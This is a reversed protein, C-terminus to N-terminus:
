NLSVLHNESIITGSDSFGEIIVLIEEESEFPVKFEPITDNRNSISQWGLIGFHKFSSISTEFYDPRKFRSPPDFGRDVLIEESTIQKDSKPRNKFKDNTFVVIIMGCAGPRDWYIEDVYELSIDKYPDLFEDYIGDFVIAPFVTGCRNNRKALQLTGARRDRWMPSILIPIFGQRQMFDGITMKTLTSDIKTAQYTPFFRQYKLRKATVVVEELNQTDSGNNSLPNQENIFKSSEHIDNTSFRHRFKEIVPKIAYSFNAKYPKGNQAILSLNLKSGKELALDKFQFKSDIVESNLLLENSKSYLVVMKPKITKDRPEVVGEITATYSNPEPVVLNKNLITNWSYKPQALISIEDMFNLDEYSVIEKAWLDRWEANKFHPELYLAFLAKKRFEQTRTKAPLISISLSETRKKTMLPKLALAVSDTTRKKNNVNYKKLQLNDSHFLFRNALIQGNGDVITLENMGNSLVDYNIKFDFKTKPEGLSFGNINQDKHVLLTLKSEPRNSNNRIDFVQVALENKYPNRAISFSVGNKKIEPLKESTLNGNKYLKLKYDTGFDPLFTFVDFGNENLKIESIKKNKKGVLFASDAVMPVGASDLVRVICKNFVGALLQGSEATIKILPEDMKMRYDFSVFDATTNNKILVPYKTSNDEEFNQMAATYVQLFYLGSNLTNTLFIDGSAKGESFLITKRTIVKGEGDILDVYIFEDEKSPLNKSHELVYANFWIHEGTFFVTKNLHLHVSKRATKFYDKYDEVLQQVATNEAQAYFQLTFLWAALFLRTKM